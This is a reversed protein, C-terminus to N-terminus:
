EQGRFQSHPQQHRATAQTPIRHPQKPSFPTASVSSSTKWLFGAYHSQSNIRRVIIHKPQRKPIGCIRIQENVQQIRDQFQRRRNNM